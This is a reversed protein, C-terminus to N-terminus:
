VVVADDRALAHPMVGLAVVVGRLGRLRLGLAGRRCPRPERCAEADLRSSQVPDGTPARDVRHPDVHRRADGHAGALGHGRAPVECFGARVHAEWDPVRLGRQVIGHQLEDPVQHGEEEDDVRRDGHGDLDEALDGQGGALQWGRAQGGDEPRHVEAHREPGAQPAIGTIAEGVRQLLRSASVLPGVEGEVDYQQGQIPAAHQGKQDARGGAAAREDWQARQPDEPEQPADMCGPDDAPDQSRGAQGARAAGEDLEEVADCEPNKAAVQDSTQPVGHAGEGVTPNDVHLPLIRRPVFIKRGQVPDQRLDM